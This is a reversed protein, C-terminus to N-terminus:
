TTRDLLFKLDKAEEATILNAILGKYVNMWSDLSMGSFSTVISGNQMTFEAQPPISRTKEKMLAKRVNGTYNTIQSDLYDQHVEHASTGADALASRIRDDLGSSKLLATIKASESHREAVLQGFKDVKFTVPETESIGNQKFLNSVEAAVVDQNIDSIVLMDQTSLDEAEELAPLAFYFHNLNTLAADSDYPQSMSYEALADSFTKMVQLKQSTSQFTTQQFAQFYDSIIM